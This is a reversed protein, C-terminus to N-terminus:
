KLSPVRNAYKQLNKLQSESLTKSKEVANAIANKSFERSEGVRLRGDKVERRLMDEIYIKHEATLSSDPNKELYNALARRAMKTTSDGKSATEVFAAETEQSSEPSVVAAQPTTEPTNADGVNEPQVIENDQSDAKNDTNDGGIVSIKGEGGQETVENADQNTVPQTRKSYCYIGGAIVIVIAVSILMRLNEQLWVKMKDGGNESSTEKEESKKEKDEV